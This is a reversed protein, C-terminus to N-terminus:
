AAEKDGGKDDHEHEVIEDEYIQSITNNAKKITETLSLQIFARKSMGLFNCVNELEKVFDVPLKACVNKHPIQAEVKKMEEPDDLILDLIRQSGDYKNALARYQIYEDFKTM